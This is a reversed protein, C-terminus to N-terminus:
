DCELNGLCTVFPFPREATPAAPGLPSPTITPDPLPIQEADHGPPSRPSHWSQPHGIILDTPVTALDTGVSGSDPIEM